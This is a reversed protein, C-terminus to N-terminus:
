LSWWLIGLLIVFLLVFLISFLPKLVGAADLGILAPLYAFIDAFMVSFLVISILRANRQSIRSGFLLFHAAVFLTMGMGWLHPTATEIFRHWSPLVTDYWPTLLHEDSVLDWGQSLGFLWVGSFLILLIFLLMYRVSIGYLHIDKPYTRM